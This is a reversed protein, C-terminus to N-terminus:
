STEEEIMLEMICVMNAGNAAIYANEQAKRCGDSSINGGECANTAAAYLAVANARAADCVVGPLCFQSNVNSTNQTLNVNQIVGNTDKNPSKEAAFTAFSCVFLLTLAFTTKGLQKKFNKM